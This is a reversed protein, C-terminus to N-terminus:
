EVAEEVPPNVCSELQTAAEEDNKADQIAEDLLRYQPEGKEDVGVPIMQRTTATDRLRELDTTLATTHQADNFVAQKAEPTLQDTVSRTPQRGGTRENIRATIDRLRKKAEDALDFLRDRETLDGRDQAENAERNLRAVEAQAEREAASEAAIPSPGENVRYEGPLPRQARALDSASPMTERLTTPRLMFEDLVAAAQDQPMTSIRRALIDAEEKPLVSGAERSLTQLGDSIKGISTEVAQQRASQEFPLEPANKAQQAVREMEALNRAEQSESVAQMVPELRREYDRLVSGTIIDSVDNQRGDVINEISQQLASRHAAEGEPGPLVNSQAINAESEVVNGADRVSQPWSGTKLRTWLNGIGKLAGGMVIGGAGAELINELPQGSDIYGPQVRERFPANIAENVGQSAVGYAGFVLATGLVGLEAEPAVPAAVLNVPDAAASSLGGAVIGVKGGFTKERQAIAQYDALARKSRAAAAAELDDSSLPPQGVKAAQDNILERMTDAPLAGGMAMGSYDIDAAVNKGTKREIDAVHDGLAEMRANEHATSQSFLEGSSWAADFAEGFTAPLDKAEQPQPAAAADQSNTWLDLM